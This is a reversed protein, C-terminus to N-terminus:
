KGESLHNFLDAIIFNSGGIFIFDDPHADELAKDYAKAVSSFCEGQLQYEQAIHYFDSVPLARPVSAQTFYYHAQRPLLALVHHIDKDNVMGMVIRLTRYSYSELQKAIYQFGGENHGTDCYTRPSNSLKQWRGQLGTLEVVHAFGEYVADDPIIIGREKLLPLATLITATNKIQYDGGLEGILNPYQAAQYIWSGDTNKAAEVLMGSQQAFYIPANEQRAKEVFVEKVNGEAEGIVVPIHPKIIGAKESAINELTNGLFQVHDLSINTIISLEPTIINTSDLRGGLGVEIVAIDVKEQRFYNFAMMMSLEFFSPQIHAVKKFENEVFDIVYRKSIMQGNVRIRERFDVLHPSTYLGVKYGAQQLIAALTHSTTGKGNTGAVHITKFSRHPHQFIDDLALTNALGPKYASAGTRQFVPLQTFLFSTAEEFTM